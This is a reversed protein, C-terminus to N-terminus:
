HILSYDVAKYGNEMEVVSNPIVKEAEQAMVGIFEGHGAIDKFEPKYEFSYLHLGSELKGVQKINQKMRIDSYNVPQNTSGTIPNITIPNGATGVAGTSGGFTGAPSMLAMGGLTMLGNTMAATNALNANYNSMNYNGTATTAGLLDPGATTGQPTPNVFNPTALNKVGSAYTLPATLNTTYKSLDQGYKNANARLGVDFGGTIASTLKDNQGQALLRKANNYAESGPMIGQNALQQDSMASEHEMTPQLRRMIADSYTEGPNIGVSPLDTPNFPSYNYDSVAATSKDIAGQLAANPAQTATWTPNGYQDTGTQNYNLNGYPTVQNVRNAATAARAADLNGAATANAAGTYDPAAPASPPGSILNSVANVIGGM